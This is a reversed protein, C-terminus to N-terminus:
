SEDLLLMATLGGGALMATVGAAMLVQGTIQTPIAWAEIARADSQFRQANAQDIAFYGTAATGAGVVLAGAGAGLTILSWTRVVSDDDVAVPQAPQERRPPKDGALVPDTRPPDPPASRPTRAEEIMAVIKPSAQVPTQVDPALELARRFKETAAQQDNLEALSIGILMLLRAKEEASRDSHEMALEFSAIAQAYEFQDFLQMGETFHQDDELALAAFLL